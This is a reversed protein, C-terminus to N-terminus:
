SSHSNCTSTSAALAPIAKMFLMTFVFDPPDLVPLAEKLLPVASHVPQHTGHTTGWPQSLCTSPLLHLMLHGRVACLQSGV